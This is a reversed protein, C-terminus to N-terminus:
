YHFPNGIKSTYKTEIKKEILKIIAQRQSISLQGKNKAETVSAIFLEKIEDCFGEYYEKALGDNELSKNNQMNKMANYLDNQSLVKECLNTQDNNHSRTTIACLSKEIESVNKSSQCKFLAKYFSKIRNLMEVDEDIEKQDFTLKRIQNQNGRKKELNM